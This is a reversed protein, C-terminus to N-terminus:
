DEKKKRTIVYAAAAAGSIVAFAALGGAVSGTEPIEVDIESDDASKETWTAEFVLDENGMKEPVEPNWGEFVFGDKAPDAPVPIKMGKVVKYTKYVEGDVLYTVTHTHKVLEAVGVLVIVGGVISIGTIVAANAISAAIVGGAVVTGGIVITVFTKDIEYQPEFVMDEAPMTSPVEPEWGVFVYGFKKPGEPVPIADGEALVHMAHTKGDARLFTATFKDPEPDAWTATYTLNRAPMVAEPAPSWGAFRRVASDEPDVPVPVEAQYLVDYEAYVEGDVMYTVKYTNVDFKAYVKIDDTGMVMDEPLANGNEDVWEVFTLGEVTPDDPHVIAEGEEFSLSEYLEGNEALYYDVNHKAIDWSATVTINFAPMTDCEDVTEGEENTWTWGAFVHGAKVPVPLEGIEEGYDYEVAEIADGGDTDFTITYQKVEWKATLDFSEDPMETPLAVIEGADNQWGIFDYGEREPDEPLKDSLDEGYEFEEDFVSEGDAFEGEGADLKISNKKVEWVAKVELNEAPMTAPLQPEWGAFTYGEKDALNYEAIEEGEEYSVTNVTDEGDMYTITFTPNVEFKPYLELNSDPITTVANGNADVWGAFYHGDKSPKGEPVPVAEGAIGADVFTEFVSDDENKYTVDYLENWTAKVTVDKAPMKEPIDGEWGAFKYGTKEPNQLEEPVVVPADTEAEVRGIETGDTDVFIVAHKEGKWKAVLTVDETPLEFEDGPMGVNENGNYWGLLEHGEKSVEPLKISEGYKDTLTDEDCEGGNADFTVTIDKAELIAVFDMGDTSDMILGSEVDPIWAVFNYGPIDEESPTEPATISSDFEVYITEYPEAGNDLDEQTLYFRAPYKDAGTTYLVLDGTVTYAELDDDSFVFETGDEFEWADTPYNEPAYETYIKEGYEFTLEDVISEYTGNEDKDAKFTVTYLEAEYIAEFTLDEKATEPLDIDWEVFNKGQATPEEPEEVDDGFDYEYRKLTSGDAFAGEGADFLFTVKVAKYVPYLNLEETPMVSPLSEVTTGGKVTTWGLFEYGEKLPEGSPHGTFAPLDAGFYTPLIETQAGLNDEYHYVLDYKNREYYANVVSSGDANVTVNMSSKTEDLFFREDASEPATVTSNPKASLTSSQADTPYSGDANMYYENLTYSVDSPESWVAYLTIADYDYNVVTVKEQEEGPKQASWYAFVKGDPHTPNEVTELEAETGIIGKETTYTNETWVGSEDVLGMDFIIESTTTIVAPDNEIFDPIWEWMSVNGDRNTGAEGRSFDIFLEAGIEKGKNNIITRDASFYYPPVEAAGESDVTNTVTNDQVKFDFEYMWDEDSLLANKVQSGFVVNNTILDYKEFFAEDNEIEDVIYDMSRSNWWENINSKWTASAELKYQGGGYNTNVAIDRMVNNEFGPLEFYSRDFIFCADGGVTYYGTEVYVRAKVAEGPAAKTTEIWSGPNEPDERFFKVTFSIDDDLAETKGAANAAISMSSFMMVLALFMALSKKLHTM